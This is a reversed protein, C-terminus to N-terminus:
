ETPLILFKPGISSICELREGRIRNQTYTRKLISDLGCYKIINQLKVVNM